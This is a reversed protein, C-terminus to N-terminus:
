ALFLITSRRTTHGAYRDRTAGCIVVDYLGQRMNKVFSKKDGATGKIM